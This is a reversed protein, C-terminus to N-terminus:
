MSITVKYGEGDATALLQCAEKARRSLVQATEEELEQALDDSQRIFHPWRDSLPLYASGM